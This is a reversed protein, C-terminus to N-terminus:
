TSNQSGTFYGVAAFTVVPSLWAPVDYGFSELVMILGLFLVSYMAGNKLYKYKKIREINSVTLHRLVLAGLGNGLLILPVSFTFAFAGVV